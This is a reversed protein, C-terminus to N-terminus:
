AVCRKTKPHRLELASQGKRRGSSLARMVASRGVENPSKQTRLNDGMAGYLGRLCPIPWVAM